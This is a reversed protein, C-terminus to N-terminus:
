KKPEEKKGGDIVQGVSWFFKFAFWACLGAIVVVAGFAILFPWM